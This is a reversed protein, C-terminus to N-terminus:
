QIVYHVIAVAFINREIDVGIATHIQEAFDGSDIL